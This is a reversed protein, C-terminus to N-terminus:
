EVPERPYKRMTALYDKEDELSFEAPQSLPTVGVGHAALLKLREKTAQRKKNISYIKIRHCSSTVHLDWSRM